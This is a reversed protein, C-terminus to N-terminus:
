GAIHWTKVGHSILARQFPKLVCLAIEVKLAKVFLTVPSSFDDRHDNRGQEFQVEAQKLSSVTVKDLSGWLQGFVDEQLCRGVADFHPAVQTLHAIENKLKYIQLNVRSFSDLIEERLPGLM